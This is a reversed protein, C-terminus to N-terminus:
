NSKTTPAYLVITSGGSSALSIRDVGAKTVLKGSYRQPSEDTDLGILTATVANGRITGKLEYLNLHHPEAATAAGGMRIDFSRGVSDDKSAGQDTFWPSESNPAPSIFIWNWIREEALAAHSVGIWFAAAILIRGGVLALAPILLRKRQQM